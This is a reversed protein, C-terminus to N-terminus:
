AAMERTPKVATTESFLKLMNVVWGLNFAKPLIDTCQLAQYASLKIFPQETIRELESSVSHLADKFILIRGSALWIFVNFVTHQQSYHTRWIKPAQHNKLM